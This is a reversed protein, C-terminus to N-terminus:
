RTSELSLRIKDAEDCMNELADLGRSTMRYLLDADPQIIQQQQISLIKLWKQWEFGATPSKASTPQIIIDVSQQLVQELNIQPYDTRSDSFINNIGCTDLHRAPWAQDNITTLPNPWIEYFGNIRTAQQYQSQIRRLRQLYREAVDNAQASKGLLQGLWIIETAVDELQQPYSYEVKLGLGELRRLSQEPSGGKWALILDPKLALVREVDITLYDGVVPLAHAADPFDSHASVAVLSEQGDIEYILEVLHPALAIVKKAVVHKDSALVAFSLLCCFIIVGSIVRGM